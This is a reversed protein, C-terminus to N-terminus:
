HHKTIGPLKGGGACAPEFITGGRRAGFNAAFSLIEMGLVSFGLTKQQELLWWSM